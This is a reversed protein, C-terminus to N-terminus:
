EVRECEAANIYLHRSGNDLELTIGNARETRSIEAGIFGAWPSSLVRWRQPQLEQARGNCQTM